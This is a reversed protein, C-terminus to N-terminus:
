DHIDDHVGARVRRHRRKRRVHQDGQLRRLGKGRAEKAGDHLARHRECRDHAPYVQRVVGVGYVQHLREEAPKGEVPM